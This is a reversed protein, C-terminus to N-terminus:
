NLRTFEVPLHPGNDFRVILAPTVMVAACLEAPGPPIVRYAVQVKGQPTIVVSEISPRTCAPVSGLFVGAVMQQPFDVAPVAPAPVRNATHEAWLADWAKQTDATANRPAAIASNITSDVQAFALQQPVPAGPDSGGGCAALALLTATAWAAAAIRRTIVSTM